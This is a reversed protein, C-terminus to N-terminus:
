KLSAFVTDWEQATLTQRLAFICDLGKEQSLRRQESAQSIFPTLEDLGASQLKDAKAFAKAIKTLEKAVAKLDKDGQKLTAEAAGARAPDAVASRVLARTDKGFMKEGFGGGAGGFLLVALLAWLM